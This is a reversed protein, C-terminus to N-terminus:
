KILGALKAVESREIVDLECMGFLKNGKLSEVMGVIGNDKEFCKKDIQDLDADFIITSNEWVRFLITKILSTTLNQAESVLIISDSL